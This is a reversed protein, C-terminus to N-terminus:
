ATLFTDASSSAERVYVLGPAICYEGFHLTSAITSSSIHDFRCREGRIIAYRYIEHGQYRGMPELLLEAEDYPQMFESLINPDPFTATAPPARLKQLATVLRKGADHALFLLVFVLVWLILQIAVPVLAEM